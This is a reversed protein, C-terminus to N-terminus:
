VVSKRDAKQDPLTWYLAFQGPDVHIEGPAFRSKIRVIKAQHQSPIKYTQTAAVAPAALLTAMGGALFTRRSPHM